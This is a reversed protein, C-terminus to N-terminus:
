TTAGATSPLAVCLACRGSELLPYLTPEAASAAGFYAEIFGEHIACVIPSPPTDAAVFPCTRLSVARANPPADDPLDARSEDESAPDFGLQRLRQVLQDFAKNSGLRGGEEALQMRRAWKKGIRHATAFREEPDELDHSLADAMLEILSLYERAIAGNDPVRASFLITPRGRGKIPATSTLVAGHALLEDLHGRVTNTHMGLQRALEAVSVGGPYHRVTELVERQKPSLPLADTFLETTPRPPRPGTTPGTSM